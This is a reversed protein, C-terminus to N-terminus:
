FANGRQQEARSLVVVEGRGISVDIGNAVTEFQQFRAQCRFTASEILFTFVYGHFLVM